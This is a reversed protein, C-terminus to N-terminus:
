RQERRLNILDFETGDLHERPAGAKHQLHPVAILLRQLQAKRDPAQVLQHAHEWADIGGQVLSLIRRRRCNQGIRHHFPGDFVCPRILAHRHAQLGVAVHRRAKREIEVTSCRSNPSAM